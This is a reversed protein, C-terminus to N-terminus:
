FESIESGCCLELKFPGRSTELGVEQELCILKTLDSQEPSKAGPYQCDGLITLFQVARHAAQKVAQSGCIWNKREQKLKRGNDRMRDGHGVTSLSAKIKRVVKKWTGACISECSRECTWSFGHSRWGSGTRVRLREECPM